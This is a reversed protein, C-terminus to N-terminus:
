ATVKFNMIADFDTQSARHQLVARMFDFPDVEEIKLEPVRSQLIHDAEGHFHIHPGRKDVDIRILAPYNQKDRQPIGTPGKIPNTPGYHFSFHKRYGLRAAGSLPPRVPSWPVQSWREYLYAFKSDPFLVAWDMKWPPSNPKTPAFFPGVEICGQELSILSHKVQFQTAYLAFNM